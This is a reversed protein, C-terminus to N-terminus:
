SWGLSGRGVRDQIRGRVAVLGLEEQLPRDESRDPDPEGVRRAGRADWGVEVGAWEDVEALGVGVARGQLKGTSPHLRKRREM